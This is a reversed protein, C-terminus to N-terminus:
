GREGEGVAVACGSADRARLWDSSRDRIRRELRGELLHRLVDGAIALLRGHEDADLLVALVDDVFAHIRRRAAQDGLERRDVLVGCPGGTVVGRCPHDPQGKPSQVSWKMTKFALM